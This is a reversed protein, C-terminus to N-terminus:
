KCSEWYSPVGITKPATTTMPQKAFQISRTGPTEFTVLPIPRGMSPASFTASCASPSASTSDCNPAANTVNRLSQEIEQRRAKGCKKWCYKFIVLVMLILIVLRLVEAIGFYTVGTNSVNFLGINENSINSEESPKEEAPTSKCM